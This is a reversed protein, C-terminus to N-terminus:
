AEDLVLNILIRGVSGDAIADISKGLSYGPNAGAVDVEGAVTADPIVRSSVLIAGDSKVYAIGDLQVIVTEGVLAATQGIQAPDSNVYEASSYSAGGVVVGAFAAYAANTTGKAVTEAASIYVVDGLLLTGAALFKAVRGGVSAIEGQERELLLNSLGTAQGTM